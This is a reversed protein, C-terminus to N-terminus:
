KNATKYAWYAVETGLRLASKPVPQKVLTEIAAVAAGHLMDEWPLHALKKAKEEVGYGALFDSLAEYPDDGNSLAVKLGENIKTVVPIAVNVIEVVGRIANLVRAVSAPLLLSAIWIRIKDIV